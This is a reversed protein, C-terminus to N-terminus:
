VATLSASRATSCHKRFKWQTRTIFYIEESIHRTQGGHKSSAQQVYEGFERQVIHAGPRDRNRSVHKTHAQWPCNLTCCGVAFRCCPKRSRCSDVLLLAKVSTIPAEAVVSGEIDSM